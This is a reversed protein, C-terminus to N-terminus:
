LWFPEQRSDVIYLLTLKDNSVAYFLSSLKKVQAVRVNEDFSSPKYMNPFASILLITKDTEKIFDDTVKDGWNNRIFGILVKFTYEFTDTYQVKLGM